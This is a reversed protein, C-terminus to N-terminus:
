IGLLIQKLIFKVVNESYHKHYMEIVSTLDCDMLELFIWIRDRFDYSAYIKLVSDYHQCQNMLGIENIILNRQSENKPECFKLACTLKDKRRKVKFVKAFGGQGLQNEHRITFDKGPDTAKLAADHFLVTQRTTMRQHSKM